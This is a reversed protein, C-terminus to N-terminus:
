QNLGKRYTQNKHSSLALSNYNGWISIRERTDVHIFSAYTGIGGFGEESCMRIFNNRFEDSKGEMNVDLAQGFNHLSSGPRAVSTQSPNKAVAANYLRKQKANSRYASQIRLVTNLRKAVRFIRIWVGIEVKQWSSPAEDKNLTAFSILNSAAFSNANIQDITASRIENAMSIEEESFEKNIYAGVGANNITQAANNKESVIVIPDKRFYGHQVADSASAVSFDSFLATQIVHASVISKLADVPSNMFVSVIETLKCLRFLIYAIVQPTIKEYGGAMRAIISEIKKKINEINLDSFFNKARAVKKSMANVTGIVMNKFSEIKKVINNIQQLLREKLSDVLKNLVDKISNLKTLVDSISYNKLQDILEVGGSILSALVLLKGNFASCFEGSLSAAYNNNYYLDLQTFYNNIEIQSDNIIQSPNSGTNTNSITSNYFGLISNIFEINYQSYELFNVYEVSLVPGQKLRELVLPYLTGNPDIKVLAEQTLSIASYVMDQDYLMSPDLQLNYLEDFTIISNKLLYPKIKTLVFKPLRIKSKM